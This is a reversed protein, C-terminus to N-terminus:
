KNSERDGVVRKTEKTRMKKKHTHTIVPIRVEAVKILEKSTNKERALM